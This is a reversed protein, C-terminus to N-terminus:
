INLYVNDKPLDNKKEKLNTKWLTEKKGLVLVFIDGEKRFLNRISLRNDKLSKIEKENTEKILYYNINNKVDLWQTYYLKNSKEIISILPGDYYILDEKTEFNKLFNKTKKM